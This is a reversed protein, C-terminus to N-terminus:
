RFRFRRQEFRRGFGVWLGLLLFAAFCGISWNAMTLGLISEKSTCFGTAMFMFPWQMGLWDVLREILNPEGYGCATAAEPHLQLWTQYIATALGGASTLAILAGWFRRVQPVLVGCLAWVGVVLYLVRQFICLPCPNLRMLEGIVLGSGVLGFAGVFLLLFAARPSKPLRLRVIGGEGGPNASSSVSAPFAHAERFPRFTESLHGIRRYYRASRRNCQLM